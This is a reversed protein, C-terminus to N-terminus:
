EREGHTTFASSKAAEISRTDPLTANNYLDEALKSRNDRYRKDKNKISCMVRYITTTLLNFAPAKGPTFMLKGREIKSLTHLLAEHSLESREESSVPHFKLSLGWCISYVMNVLKDWYISTPQDLYYGNLLIDERNGEESSVPFQSSRFAQTFDEQGLASGRKLCFHFPQTSGIFHESNNGVTKTWFMNSERLLDLEPTLRAFYWRVWVRELEKNDCYKAM